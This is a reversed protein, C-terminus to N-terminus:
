GDSADATSATSATGTKDGTTSATTVPKRGVVVRDGVKLAGELPSVEVFGQASLGTGIAAIRGGDTLVDTGPLVGKRDMTVVTGNRILLM